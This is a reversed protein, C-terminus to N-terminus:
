LVDLAPASQAVVDDFRDYWVSFILFSLFPLALPNTVQCWLFLASPEFSLPSSLLDLASSTRSVSSNM